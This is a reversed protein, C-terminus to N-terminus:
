RPQHRQGAHSTNPGDSCQYSDASQNFGALRRELRRHQLFKGFSTQLTVVPFYEGNTEYVYTFDGLSNTILDTIGDGNFDYLVQQM